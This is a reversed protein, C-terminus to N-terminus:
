MGLASVVANESMGVSVLTTGIVLNNGTRGEPMAQSSAQAVGARASILAIWLCCISPVLANSTRM